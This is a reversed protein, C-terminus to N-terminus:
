YLLITIKTFSKTYSITEATVTIGPLLFGDPVLLIPRNNKDAFMALENPWLYDGKLTRSKSLDRLDFQMISGKRLLSFSTISLIGRSLIQHFSTWPLKIKLLKIMHQVNMVFIPCSLQHQATHYANKSHTTCIRGVQVYSPTPVKLSKSLALTLNGYIAVMPMSRSCESYWWSWILSATKNFANAILLLSDMWRNCISPPALFSSLLVSM